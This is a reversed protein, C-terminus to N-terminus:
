CASNVWQEYLKCYEEYWAPGDAYTDQLQLIFDLLERFSAATVNQMKIREILKLVQKIELAVIPTSVFRRYNKWYRAKHFADITNPDLKKTIFLGYVPKEDSTEITKFVHRTVPEGEVAFQRSGSTLTMECVLKFNDYTFTLDAEGGKAHHIPNIDEDIRFGRTKSVPGVIENIALFLRWIAWEFFAPAYDSGGFFISTGTNIDELLDEIEDLATRSCQSRYFQIERVDRLKERLHIEYARLESITVETPQTPLTAAEGLLTALKVFQEELNVIEGKLFLLDDTPLLPVDPNYFLELYNEGSILSTDDSLIAEVVPLRAESLTLKNGHTTLLGTILAYRGSSDAYDFLSRPKLQVRAAEAVLKQKTFKNKNVKGIIANYDARFTKINSVAEEFALDDDEDIVNIVYLAIEFKTLGILGEERMRKLFCLLLRFPRVRFGQVRNGSELPSPIQYKMLQRLFILEELKPHEILMTGVSTMDWSKGREWDTVFGLQKFASAFKRGGDDGKTTRKSDLRDTEDDEIVLEANVVLEPDVASAEEDETTRKSDVLGAKVLENLYEQQEAKRFPRGGMKTRFLQLAERLRYPNRVTTNGINWTKM